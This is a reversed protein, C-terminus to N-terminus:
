RRTRAPTPWSSRNGRRCVRRVPDAGRGGPSRGGRRGAGAPDTLEAFMALATMVLTPGLDGGPSRQDGDAFAAALAPGEDSDLLAPQTDLLTAVDSPGPWAVDVDDHVQQVPVRLGVPHRLTSRLVEHQRMAAELRGRLVAPAVSTDLRTVLQVVARTRSDSFLRSQQRSLSFGFADSM